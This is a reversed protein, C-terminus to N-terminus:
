QKNKKGRRRNKKESSPAAEAPAAEEAPAAAEESQAPEEAAAAAAAAPAAEEAAAAPAAAEEAVAAAPAAEEAVPAEEAAAVAKPEEEAAPEPQAPEAQAEPEAQVQEPEAEVGAEAQVNEQVSEPEPDKSDEQEPEPEQGNVLVASDMVHAPVGTAQEHEHEERAEEADDETVLVGSKESADSHAEEHSEDEVDAPAAAAAAAPAAAVEPELVSPHVTAPNYESTVPSVLVPPSLPASTSAAPADKEHDMLAQAFTRGTSTAAEPLVAEPAAAVAAAMQAEKLAQQRAAEEQLRAKEALQVKVAEARAIEEREQDRQQIAAKAKELTSLAARKHGESAQLQPESVVLQLAEVSQEFQDLALHAIGKSLLAGATPQLELSKIADRLADEPRKMEILTNARNTYLKCNAEDEAIAMNWSELAKAFKRHVHFESATRAHSKPPAAAGANGNVSSAAASESPRNLFGANAPQPKAATSPRSGSNRKKKKAPARQTESASGSAPTADASGRTALYVLGGVAALAVAGLAMKVPATLHLSSM